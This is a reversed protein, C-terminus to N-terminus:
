PEEGEPLAPEPVPGTDMVPRIMEILVGGPQQTTKCLWLGDRAAGSLRMRSAVRGILIDIEYFLFLLVRTEYM